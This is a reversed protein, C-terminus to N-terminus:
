ECLAYLATGDGDAGMEMLTKVSPDYTYTLAPKADGTAAYLKVIAFPADQELTMAGFFQPPGAPPLGKELTILQIETEFFAFAIATGECTRAKAVAAASLDETILGWRGQDLLMQAEANLAAAAQGSLAAILAGAVM